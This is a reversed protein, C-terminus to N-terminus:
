GVSYERSPTVDHPHQEDERGVRVVADEVLLEAAALRQAQLVDRRRQQRVVVHLQQVHPEVAAQLAPQALAREVRDADGDREGGGDGRGVPQQLPDVAVVRPDEPQHAPVVGAGGQLLDVEPVHVVRHAALPDV